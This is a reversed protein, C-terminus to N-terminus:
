WRKPSFSSDGVEHYSFLYFLCCTGGFRWSIDVLNCELLRDDEFYIQKLYLKIYQSALCRCIRCHPLEFLAVPVPSCSHEKTCTLPLQRGSRQYSSRQVVSKSSVASHTMYTYMCVYACVIIRYNQTYISLSIHLLSLKLWAASQVVPIRNEIPTLIERNASAAWLLEPGPV